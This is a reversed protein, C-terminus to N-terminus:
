ALKKMTGSPLKTINQDTPTSNTLYVTGADKTMNLKKQWSATATICSSSERSITRRLTGTWRKQVTPMHRKYARVSRSLELRASPAEQTSTEQM